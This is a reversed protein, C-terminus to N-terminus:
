VVISGTSTSRCNSAWPKSQLQGAEKLLCLWSVYGLQRLYAYLFHKRSAHTLHSINTYLTMFLQTVTLALYFFYYSHSCLCSHLVAQRAYASVSCLHLLMGMMMSLTSSKPFSNIAKISARESSSVLWEIRIRVYQYKTSVVILIEIM